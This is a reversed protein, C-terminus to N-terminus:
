NGVDVYKFAMGDMRECMGSCGNGNYRHFELGNKQAFRWVRQSNQWGYGIKYIRIQRGNHEGMMPIDVLRKDGGAIRFYGQTM